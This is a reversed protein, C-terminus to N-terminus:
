KFRSLDLAQFGQLVQGSTNGTTATTGSSKREHRASSGSTLVKHLSLREQESLHLMLSKFSSSLPGQALHLLAAVAVTTVTKDEAQSAIRVLIPLFSPVYLEGRMACFQSCLQIVMQIHDPNFATTSEATAYEYLDGIVAPYLVLCCQLVWPTVDPNEEIWTDIGAVITQRLDAHITSMAAGLCGLFTTQCESIGADAKSGQHSVIQGLFLLVHVLHKVPVNQNCSEVFKLTMESFICTLIESISPVNLDIAMAIDLNNAKESAVIRATEIIHRYALSTIRDPPNGSLLTTACKLSHYLCYCIEEPAATSSVLIELAKRPIELSKELCSPASAAAVHICEITWCFRSEVGGPARKRASIEVVNRIIESGLSCIEIMQCGQSRYDKMIELAVMAAEDIMDDEVWGQVAYQPKTLRAFSRLISLKTYGCSADFTSCAVALEFLSCYRAKGSDGHSVTRDQAMVLTAADLIRPWAKKMPEEIGRKADKLTPAKSSGLRGYLSLTYSAHYAPEEKLLVVTDELLGTWCEVLITYFPGHSRTVIESYRSGQSSELNEQLTACIAHSELLAVRAGAAVWESYANQTQDPSGSSWLSLPECLLGLIKEMLANDGRAIGKELFSAVLSCGAANVAPSAGKSLSLRLASVFQALFQVMLLDEPSLPDRSSGLAELTEVLLNVGRSRLGDVDGSALKFGIDVLAAGSLVLWDGQQREAEIADLHIKSSQSALQPIRSLLDAAFIRTKLRPRLVSADNSEKPVEAVPKDSDDDIGFIEKSSDDEKKPTVATSINGLLRIWHSPSKAAGNELLVEVTQKLQKTTSPDTEGDLAELMSSQINQELVDETEKETLHRITDAAARRLNPQRSPLTGVLVAVHQATTLANPVFLVLMQVYHVSELAGSLIDEKLRVGSSDPARLESVISRCIAYADSGPVFDPGLCAVMANGLRGISPLLGPTSYISDDLLMQQAIELTKKVYPLFAPGSSSSAVTLAHAIFACISSASAKALAHLTQVIQPLLSALGIGGLSRSISGISLVYTVRQDLSPTSVANKCLASLLHYSQQIDILNSVAFYLNSATIQVWFGKSSDLVLNEAMKQIKQICEASLSKANENAGFGLILPSAGVIALALRKSGTKDKKIASPLEVLKEVIKSREDDSTYMLAGSIIVVRATLLAEPLSVSQYFSPEGTSASSAQLKMIDRELGGSAGSFRMLDREFVDKSFFFRQILEDDHMFTLFHKLGTVSLVSVASNAIGEVCNNCLASVSADGWFDSPMLSVLKFLRTQFLSACAQLQSYGSRSMNKTSQCIMPNDLVIKIMATLWGYLTYKDDGVFAFANSAIYSGLARLAEARWWLEASSAQEQVCLVICM